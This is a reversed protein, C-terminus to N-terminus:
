DKGERRGQEWAHRQQLQEYRMRGPITLQLRMLGGNMLLCTTDGFSSLPRHTRGDYVEVILRQQAELYQLLQAAISGETTLGMAASLAGFQVDARRGKGQGEALEYTKFEREETETMRNWGFYSTLAERVLDVMERRQVAAAIRLHQHLDADLNFTAKKSDM